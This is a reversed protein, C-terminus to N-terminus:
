SVIMLCDNEVSTPRPRSQNEAHPLLESVSPTAPRDTSATRVQPYENRPDAWVLISLASEGPRPHVARCLQRRSFPPATPGGSFPPCRHRGPQQRHLGPAEPSPRDIPWCQRGGYHSRQRWGSYFLRSVARTALNLACTPLGPVHGPLAELHLHYVGRPLCLHLLPHPPRGEPPHLGL